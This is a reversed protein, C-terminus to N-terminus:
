EDRRVPQTKGVHRLRELDEPSPTVVPPYGHLDMRRLARKLEREIEDLKQREREELTRLDKGTM